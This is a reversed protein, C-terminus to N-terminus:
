EGLVLSVKAPIKILKNELLHILMKAMADALTTAKTISTENMRSTNGKEIRCVEWMGNDHRDIQLRGPILAGLEAVIFASVGKGDMALESLIVESNYGARDTWKFLSEQKVELNKLKKSLELSCVQEELRM